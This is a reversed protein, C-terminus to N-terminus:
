DSSVEVHLAGAEKAIKLGAILTEYVVENNTILFNFRLAYKAFTDGSNMFIVGACAGSSNFSGDVYLTWRNDVGWKDGDARVLEKPKEEELIICELVFDACAQVKISPKPHYKTDFEALELVWKAM